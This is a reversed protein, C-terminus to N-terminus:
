PLFWTYGGFVASGRLFVYLVAALLALFSVFVLVTYISESSGTSSDAM